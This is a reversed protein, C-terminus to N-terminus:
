PTQHPSSSAPPDSATESEPPRPTHSRSMLPSEGQAMNKKRRSKKPERPVKKMARQFLILLVIMVTIYIITALFFATKFRPDDPISWGPKSITNLILM